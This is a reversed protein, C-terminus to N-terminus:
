YAKYSVYSIYENAEFIANFFRFIFHTLCYSFLNGSSLFLVLGERYGRDTACM